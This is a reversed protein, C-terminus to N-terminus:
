LSCALGWDTIVQQCIKRDTPYTLKKLAAEFDLWLAGSVEEEQLQLEGQVEAAFFCVTKNILQGRLTFMYHEEIGIDSLFHKVSLNTEEKLERTATEKPSEGVEAHGKPFGWYKARSHQILLVQWQGGQKRLPVIGYSYERVSMM